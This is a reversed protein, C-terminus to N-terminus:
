RFSNCLWLHRRIPPPIAVVGDAIALPTEQNDTLKEQTGTKKHFLARLPLFEDDCVSCSINVMLRDKLTLDCQICKGTKNDELVLSAAPLARKPSPTKGFGDQSCFQFNVNPQGNRLRHLEKAIGVATVAKTPERTDKLLKSTNRVPTHSHVLAPVKNMAKHIPPDREDYALKYSETDLDKPNEPFVAIVPLGANPKVGCAELSQRIDKSLQYIQRYEPMTGSKNIANRALTATTWKVTSDKMSMINLRKHREAVTQIIDWYSSDTSEFKEWDKGTFYNFPALLVQGKGGPSHEHISDAECSLNIDVAATLKDKSEPDLGCTEITGYLKIAWQAGIDAIRLKRIINNVMTDGIKNYAGQDGNSAKRM